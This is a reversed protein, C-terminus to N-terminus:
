TIAPACTQFRQLFVAQSQMALLLVQLRLHTWRHWRRTSEQKIESPQGELFKNSIIDSTSSFIEIAYAYIMAEILREIKMELLVEDINLQRICITLWNLMGDMGFEGRRIMRSIEEITAGFGIVRNLARDVMEWAEDGEELESHPDGSFRALIDTSAGLQVSHPLNNIVQRLKELLTQPAAPPNTNANEDDDIVMTFASDNKSTEGLGHSMSPLRASLTLAALHSTSLGPQPHPTEVAKQFFSTISKNKSSIKERQQHATSALHAQWNAEGGFGIKV